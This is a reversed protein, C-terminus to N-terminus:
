VLNPLDPMKQCIESYNPMNNTYIYIYIYIYINKKKKKKKKKKNNNNNNKLGTQYIKITCGPLLPAVSLFLIACDNLIWLMKVTYIM